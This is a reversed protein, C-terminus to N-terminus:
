READQAQLLGRADERNPARRSHRCHGPEPRAPAHLHHPPPAHNTNYSTYLITYLIFFYLLFPSNVRLYLVSLKRKILEPWFQGATNCATPHDSTLQAGCASALTAEPSTVQKPNAATPICLENLKSELKATRLIYSNVTYELLPMNQSHEQRSTFICVQM